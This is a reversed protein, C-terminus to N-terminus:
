RVTEQYVVLTREAMRDYDFREARTRGAAGLATRRGGDAVLAAV